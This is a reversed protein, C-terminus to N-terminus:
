KWNMDRYLKLIMKIGKWNMDRYLKLTMKIGKLTMKIGQTLIQCIKDRMILSEQNLIAFGNNTLKKDRWM